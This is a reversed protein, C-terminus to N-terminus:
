FNIMSTEDELFHSGLSERRYLATVLIERAVSAMNLLEIHSPTVLAGNEAMEIIENMYDLAHILGQPSRVIGGHTQMLERIKAMMANVDGSFEPYNVPSIEIANASQVPLNNIANATKAAFVICELLSNSALRNAGHVGTCATEGCAYLGPISTEGSPNTKIGGMFYHQVPLVPILDREPQIGRKSCHSYITPFRQAFYAGPLSTVDLYVHDQGAEAMERFIERAVVDRPALDKKKHRYNMFAEGHKNRLVGGEGRVAESILFFSEGEEKGYLATPHFQVFEMNELRVGARIAAAIGDGTTQKHNTTHQYIGGVGGTALVVTPAWFTVFSDHYAVVGAVTDKTDTLVDTLFHHEFVQINPKENVLHIMQNMILRGTADGGCHIIRGRSHAGESTTHWNGHEDADFKVGLSALRAVESPGSDVMLRVVDQDAIGVAARLTDSLHIDPNDNEGIAAAIGGQALASNCQELASKVLVAVSLGADMLVAAYLGSLGGGVVVVDFHRSPIEELPKNVIFRRM